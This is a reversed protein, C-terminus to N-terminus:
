LQGVSERHTFPGYEFTLKTGISVAARYEVAQLVRPSYNKGTRREIATAEEAVDRRKNAISKGIRWRISRGSKLEYAAGRVDGGCDDAHALDCM